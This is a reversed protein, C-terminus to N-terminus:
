FNIMTKLYKLLKDRNIIKENGYFQSHMGAYVNGVFFYNRKFGCHYLLSTIAFYADGCGTTDVTKKFVPSFIRKWKTITAVMNGDTMSFIKKIKKLFIKWIKVVLLKNELGIEM